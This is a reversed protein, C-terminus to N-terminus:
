KDCVVPVLRDGLRAVAAASTMADNSGAAEIGGGAKGVFAALATAPVIPYIAAPLVGAFARTEDPPSAVLGVLRGAADLVPASLGGVPLPARVGGVTAEGSVVTAGAAARVVVTEPSGPAPAAAALSIPPVTATDAWALLALAKTDDLGAMTAPRGNVGLARCGDVAAAAVVARGPAVLLGTAALRPNPTPNAPKSTEVAAPPTADGPKPAPLTEVPKAGPQAVFSGASAIVVRDMTQAVAPDTYVIFGRVGDGAREFRQYGRKAGVTDAVVFWDARLVAYGVKHGPGEAKLREYLAALDQNPVAYTRYEIRGDRSAWRSGGEAKAPKGLLKLPLGLRVGTAPDDVLGFGVAERAIKATKALLTLAEPTPAGDAAFKARQQFARLAEFTMRGFAGDIAGTYDGSWVLDSQIAKREDDPRAEWAVRAAELDAAPSAPGAPKAAASGHPLNFSNQAEAIGGAALWFSMASVALWRRDMPRAM